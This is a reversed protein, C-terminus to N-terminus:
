CAQNYFHQLTQNSYLYKRKNHGQDKSNRNIIGECNMALSSVHTLLPVTQRHTLYAQLCKIPCM